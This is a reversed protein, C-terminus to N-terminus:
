MKTKKIMINENEEKATEKDTEERKEVKRCQKGEELLSPKM